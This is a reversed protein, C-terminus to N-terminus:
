RPSKDAIASSAIPVTSSVLTASTLVVSRITRSVVIEIGLTSCLFSHSLPRRLGSCKWSCGPSCREPVSTPLYPNAAIAILVIGEFQRTLMFRGGRRLTSALRPCQRRSAGGRKGAGSMLGSTGMELM